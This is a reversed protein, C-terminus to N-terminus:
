LYKLTHKKSNIGARQFTKKISKSALKSLCQTFNHASVILQMPYRGNTSVPKHDKISLHVSLIRKTKVWSKLFQVKGNSCLHDIDKILTNTDRYIQDLNSRTIEDCYHYIHIEMNAIYDDNWIPIRQSTKDSQVVLWDPDEALDLLCAILARGCKPFHRTHSMM